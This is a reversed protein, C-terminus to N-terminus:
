WVHSSWSVNLGAVVTADYILSKFCSVETATFLGGSLHEVETLLDDDVDIFKTIPLYNKTSVMPMSSSCNQQECVSLTSDSKKDTPTQINTTNVYDTTQNPHQALKFVKQIKYNRKHAGETNSLVADIGVIHLGSTVSLHESLYGKGSGFDLM